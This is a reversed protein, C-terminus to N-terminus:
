ELADVARAPNPALRECGSSVGGFDGLTVLRLGVLGGGGGVVAGAGGGGLLLGLIDRACLRRETLPNM